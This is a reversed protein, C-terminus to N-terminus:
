FIYGFDILMSMIDNLKEDAVSQVAERLREEDEEILCSYLQYALWAKRYCEVIREDKTKKGAFCGKSMKDLLEHLFIVNMDNMRTGTVPNPKNRVIRVKM